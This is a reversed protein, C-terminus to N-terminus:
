AHDATRENSSNKGDGSEGTLFLLLTNAEFSHIANDAYIQEHPPTPPSHIRCKSFIRIESPFLQLFRDAAPESELLLFQLGLYM